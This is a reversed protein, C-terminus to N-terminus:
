KKSVIKIFLSMNEGTIYSCITLISSMFVLLDSLTPFVALSIDLYKVFTLVLSKNFVPALWM